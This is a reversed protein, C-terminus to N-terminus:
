EDVDINLDTTVEAVTFLGEEDAKDLADGRESLVDREDPLVEDEAPTNPAETDAAM